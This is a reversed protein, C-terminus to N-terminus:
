GSGGTKTLLRPEEGQRYLWLVAGPRAALDFLAEYLRVERPWPYAYILDMEAISTGLARYADRERCADWDTAGYTGVVRFREELGAPVFSGCVFSVPLGDDRCLAAAAEVFRPELEIGHANMGNIAALGAITGMGSGWDCFSRGSVLGRRLLKKLGRGFAVPDSGLLTTVDPNRALFARRRAAALGIFARESESLEGADACLSLQLARLTM